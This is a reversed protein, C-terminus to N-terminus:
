LNPPLPKLRIFSKRLIWYLVVSLPLMILFWVSIARLHAMWLNKLTIYWNTKLIENLSDLVQQDTSIGWLVDGLQFFPILLILQLPFVAYNVMQIVVLNLRLVIALLICILTNVGLLPIIGFSFGLVITLSLQKPEMGKRLYSLLPNVFKSKYYEVLKKM